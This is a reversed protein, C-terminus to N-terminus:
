LRLIQEQRHCVTLFFFLFFFIVQILKEYLEIDRGATWKCIIHLLSRGKPSKSNPDAGLLLLKLFIDKHTEGLSFQKAMYVIPSLGEFTRRNIDIKEGIGSSLLANLIDFKSNILCMLLPTRGMSDGLNFDIENVRDSDLLFKVATLDGSEILQHILPISTDTFANLDKVYPLFVKLAALRKTKSLNTIVTLITNQNVEAGKDLLLQSCKPHYLALSLADTGDATLQKLDAGHELLFELALLNGTTSAIHFPTKGTTDLSNIPM